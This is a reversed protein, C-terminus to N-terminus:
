HPFYEDSLGRPKGLVEAAIVARVLDGKTSFIRSRPTRVPEHAAERAQAATPVAQKRAAPTVRSGPPRVPPSPAAPVAAPPAFPRPRETLRRPSRAQTQMQRRVSSVMSGVVGVVLLIVWVAIGVERV